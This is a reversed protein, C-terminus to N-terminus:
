QAVFVHRNHRGDLVQEIEELFCFLRIGIIVFVEHCHELHDLFVSARTRHGVERVHEFSFDFSIARIHAFCSVFLHFFSILGNALLEESGEHQASCVREYENLVDEEDDDLIEIVESGTAKTPISSFDLGSNNAALVARQEDSMEPEDQVVNDIGYEEETETLMGPADAPIDPFPAPEEPEVLMEYEEDNDFKYEIGKRDKFNIGKIAGDKVAMEEVQKIVADTVPMETFKRRTVKKGTELSLFKYSGQLNGTPGMCIGWNTRPELTNTIDPHIHMECYSGFPARCHLKADLKTRSILERPSWKESIGSKVPFSNMWMVCFHLLEIVMVRPLKKYPLTNFKGRAREKIVRIKREIEGVHERAATTNLAVHPMLPKLKEFEMDMMATQIIFGATAYIKFVRELTQVLRKATRSPIHEIKM